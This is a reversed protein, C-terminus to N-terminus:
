RRNEPANTTLTGAAKQLSQSLLSRANKINGADDALKAKLQRANILTAEFGTPDNTCDLVATDSISDEYNAVDAIYQNVAADFQIQTNKLDTIDVNQLQLKRLTTTVRTSLNAYLEQRQDLMKKDKAATHKLIAQAAVCNKAINQSQATALQLKLANKRQTVRDAIKQQTASSTNSTPSQAFVGSVLCLVMGLMLLIYGSLIKTNKM